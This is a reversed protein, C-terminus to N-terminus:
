NRTDTSSALEAEYLSMALLKYSSTSLQIFLVYVNLFSKAIYEIAMDISKKMVDSTIASLEGLTYRIKSKQMFIPIINSLYDTLLSFKKASAIQKCWALVILPIILLSTIIVLTFYFVNLKLFYAVVIIGSIIGLVELVFNKTSINTGYKNISEKINNVKIPM